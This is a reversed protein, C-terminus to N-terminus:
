QAAALPIVTGAVETSLAAPQAEDQAATLLDEISRVTPFSSVGTAVTQRRGAILGGAVDHAVVAATERAESLSVGPLVMVIADPRVRFARGDAGVRREARRAVGRVLEESRQEGLFNRSDEYHELRLYVVSLPRHEDLATATSVELFGPLCAMTSLGTGPDVKPVHAQRRRREAVPRRRVRTAAVCGGAVLVILKAAAGIRTGGMTPDAIALIVLLLLSPGVLFPWDARPAGALQGFALFPVAVLLWSGSGGSLALAIGLCAWDLVVFTHALDEPRRGAVRMSYVGYLVGAVAPAVAAREGLALALATVLLFFLTRYRARLLAPDPRRRSLRSVRHGDPDHLAHATRAHM